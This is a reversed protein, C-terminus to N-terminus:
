GRGSGGSGSGGHGSGDDGGGGSSGGCPDPLCTGTPAPAGGAAACAAATETECEFGDTPSPVCCAIEDPPLSTANCPDPLCSTATSPTGGAAVCAKASLDECENGDDGGTDPLCCIIDGGVPPIPTCPNTACSAGGVMTGGATLCADQTRDECEPGSDDPLCCVMDDDDGVPPAGACPNPLCSTADTVVTGGQAACEGSTRDECETGGDDPLCCVVEGASPSDDPFSNALVDDGGTSRVVITTGRPDFGLPMESANRPRTRFRAKGGGGGNTLLDAVRVGGVIVEYRADRDLHKAIVEFKGDSASVLALRALGRATTTAATPVLVTRIRVRADASTGPLLAATAAAFLVIKTLPRM